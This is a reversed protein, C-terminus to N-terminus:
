GECLDVTLSVWYIIELSPCREPPRPHGPGWHLYLRCQSAALITWPDMKHLGIWGLGDASRGLKVWGLVVLLNSQKICGFRIWGHKLHM